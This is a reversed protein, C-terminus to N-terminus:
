VTYSHMFGYGAHLIICKICHLTYSLWFMGLVFIISLYHHIQRTFIAHCFSLLYHWLNRILCFENLTYSFYCFYINQQPRLSHCIHCSHIHKAIHLSISKHHIHIHMHHTYLYTYSICIYIKTTHTIIYIHPTFTYRTLALIFFANHTYHIYRNDNYVHICVFVIVLYLCHTHYVM